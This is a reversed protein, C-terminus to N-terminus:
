TLSMLSGGKALLSLSVFCFCRAAVRVGQFFDGEGCHMIKSHNFGDLVVQPSLWWSVGSTTADLPVLGM